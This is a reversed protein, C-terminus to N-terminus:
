VDRKEEYNRHWEILADETISHPVNATYAGPPRIRKAPLGGERILKRVTKIGVHKRTMGHRNYGNLYDAIQQLGVLIRSRM